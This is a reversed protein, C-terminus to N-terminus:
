LISRGVIIKRLALMASYNPFVLVEKKPVNTKKTAAAVLDVAHKIDPVINEKKIPVDAYTLRVAMDFARSGAVFINKNACILALLDAPVDYIWSVDRGDPINDNLIFLFTDILSFSDQTTKLNSTFSMPNKALFLKWSIDSYFINEGRGWAASFDHLTNLATDTAIGFFSVAYLAANLNRANSDGKLAVRDLHEITNDFYYTDGKFHAAVSTLQPQQVDLVLKVTQPLKKAADMWKDLIIDTEGYRDLQDRSLNLLMLVNPVRKELLQPLNFEDVEFVGFDARAVGRVSTNLILASAIGNLLNAGSDNTVVSYGSKKLIHVILKTTTTKGNTASIYILGKKPFLVNEHLLDPYLKLTVHGPWTLGNGLNFLRIFANTLKALTICILYM